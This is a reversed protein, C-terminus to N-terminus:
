LLVTASNDRLYAAGELTLTLYCIDVVSGRADLIASGTVLGDSLLSSVVADFYVDNVRTLERAEDVDPYVGEKLCAHLYALVKYAVVEFDDFSM